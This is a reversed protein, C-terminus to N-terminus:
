GTRCFFARLRSSQGFQRLVGPRKGHQGACPAHGSAGPCVSGTKLDYWTGDIYVSLVGQLIFFYEDMHPHLHLLTMFGPDERFQGLWWAGGSREGGVLIHAEGLGQSYVQAEEPPVILIQRIVVEPNQGGNGGTSPVGAQSM